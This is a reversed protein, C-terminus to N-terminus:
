LFERHPPAFPRIEERLGRLNAGHRGLSGFTRVADPCPFNAIGGGAPRGHESRAGGWPCNALIPQDPTAALEAVLRATREPDIAAAPTLIALLGDSGPDHLAAAAVRAFRLRGM